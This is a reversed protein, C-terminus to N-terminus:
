GEQGRQPDNIVLSAIFIWETFHRVGQTGVGWGQCGTGQEFLALKCDAQLRFSRQEGLVAPSGLSTQQPM